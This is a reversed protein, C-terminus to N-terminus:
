LLRAPLTSLLVAPMVGHLHCHDWVVCAAAPAPVMGHWTSTSPHDPAPGHCTNLQGSLDNV